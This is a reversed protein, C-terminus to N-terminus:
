TAAEMTVVILIPWTEEGSLSLSPPILRYQAFRVPYSVEGIAPVSGTARVSRGTRSLAGNNGYWQVSVGGAPVYPLEVAEGAPFPMQQSRTRTVQGLPQIMGSSCAVSSIRVTADHHVLWVPRDGPFFQTKEQDDATRNLEGDLEVVVLANSDAGQGFQVVVTAKM